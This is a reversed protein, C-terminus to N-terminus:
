IPVPNLQQTQTLIYIKCDYSDSMTADLGHSPENTCLSVYRCKDVTIKKVHDIDHIILKVNRLRDLTIYEARITSKLHNCLYSFRFIVNSYLLTDTDIYLALLYQVNCNMFTVDRLLISKAKINNAICTRLTMNKFTVNDMIISEFTLSNLGYSTRITCDNFEVNKLVLTYRCDYDHRFLQTVDRHSFTENIHVIYYVDSTIIDIERQIMQLILRSPETPLIEFKRILNSFFIDYLRLRDYAIQEM